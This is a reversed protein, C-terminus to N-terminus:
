GLFISGGLWNPRLKRLIAFFILSIYHKETTHFDWLTARHSEKQMKRSETLGGLGSQDIGGM